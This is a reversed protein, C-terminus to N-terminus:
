RLLLGEETLKIGYNERTYLKRGLESELQAIQRSLAPQTMHLKEAARTFSGSEAIELFYRLIRLEM